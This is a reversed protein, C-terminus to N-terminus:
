LADANKILQYYYRVSTVLSDVAIRENKGHFRGVDVPAVIVPSFRFVNPSHAAFYKSDTGAVVLMPSVIVDPPLAQRITRTLMGFAAAHTDSVPSPETAEGKVTVTVREDGIAGRVFAIAGAVSDRPGLRLNVLATAESALVNAKVGARVVTPAVTTHIFAAARPDKMLQRVVLPEFLWLNALPLRMALPMEPALSEFMQRTPGELSPPFPTAEVRALARSLIGISTEAPPMSSHGGETVVKLELNLYGKEAIGVMAVPRDVGPTLGKGVMGGEDSVVAFRSVGRERLTEVVRRTGATGGAEEDHGCVLYITRRPQFGEAVLHEVGELLTILNGKDDLAGRGWVFGDAIEGSFPGHAWPGGREDVPVVDLHAMFVAPELAPDRGRWAYLLSATNVTERSLTTHVGPFTTRLYDHLELFAAADAQGPDDYSVTRIRIAGALERAVRDADVQIRVQPPAPSQPPALRATRVIIAGALSLVLLVVVALSTHKM